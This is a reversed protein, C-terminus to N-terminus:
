TGLLVEAKQSLCIGLACRFKLGQKYSSFVEGALGSSLPSTSYLREDTFDSHVSRHSDAFLKLEASWVSPTENGNLSKVEGPHSGM